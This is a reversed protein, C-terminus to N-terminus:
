LKVNLENTNSFPSSTKKSMSRVHWYYKGPPPLDLVFFNEVIKKKLVVNNFEKDTAVEIEYSETFNTKQWTVLTSMESRSVVAGYEPIVLQPPLFSFIFPQVDSRVIFGSSLISRVSYFVKGTFIKDKNFVYLANEVTKELLAKKSTASKAIRVIYKKSHPYPKWRLTVAFGKQDSNYANSTTTKGGVLPPLTEIAQYEPELYFRTRAVSGKSEGCDVCRVEWDYMGPRELKVDASMKDTTIVMNKDFLEEGRDDKLVTRFEKGLPAMTWQLTITKEPDQSGTDISIRTGPIPSVFEIKVAVASVSPSPIPSPSPSLKMLPTASPSPVGVPRPSPVVTAAPKPEFFNFFSKRTPTPSPQVKSIAKKLPAAAVEITQQKDKRIAVVRDRTKLVIEAAKAQGTVNGTVVEVNAARAIGQLSLRSEFALRVMTNEALEITSGDDLLITAKSEPGTVLNDYNYLQADHEITKFETENSSQRLVSGARSYLTGVPETKGEQQEWGLLYGRISINSFYIYASGTSAGMGLFLLFIEWKKFNVGSKM